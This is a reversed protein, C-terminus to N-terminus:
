EKKLYRRCIDSIIGLFFWCFIRKVSFVLHGDSGYNSQETMRVLAQWGSNAKHELHTRAFFLFFNMLALLCSSCLNRTATFSIKRHGSISFYRSLEKASM